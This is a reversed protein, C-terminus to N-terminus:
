EAASASHFAGATGEYDSSPDVRAARAVSSEERLESAEDTALRRERWDRRLTRVLQVGGYIAFGWVTGKILLSAGGRKVAFRGAARALSAVPLGDYFSQEALRRALVLGKRKIRSARSIEEDFRLREGPLPPLHVSESFGSEGFWDKKGGRYLYLNGYGMGSLQWAVADPASSREDQGYVVIEAGPDPLYQTALERVRSVHMLMATPIHRVEYRADSGNQAEILVVREGQATKMDIQKKTIERIMPM